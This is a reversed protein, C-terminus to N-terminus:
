HFYVQSELTKNLCSAFQGGSNMPGDDGDDNGGFTMMDSEGMKGENWQNSNGGMAGFRPNPPTRILEIAEEDSISPDPVFEVLPLIDFNIFSRVFPHGCNTCVDGKSFKNTFPNLLPNISGCRYCAPLHEPEDRVPKAQVLLMDREVDEVWKSPIKLKGLRDYAYRALKYAGLLMSQRALTYITAAKSIGYPISDSNGLSNIIFRTVQFLMDPHQSTFPDTVYEHVHAYAFYLDSNHECEMQRLQQNPMNSLEKSMLWYYYASDKFRSECVSNYTLEELVKQALDQRQAKKYAQMADEYRDQTILWEAYPLFMSPDFRGENEEALKAAEKWMERKVYLHMIKSINGLKTYVERALEDENAACLVEGCFNLAEVEEAPAARVVHQMAAQWGVAAGADSIIRAAEIFRNMSVYIEASGKWDNIEQLWKAQKQVLAAAGGPVGSSEALMKADNWLRLDTFLRIAEDVKGARAYTKAAEHIHGEYALVEAQWSPSLLLKPAQATTTSIPAPAVGRARRGSGDVKGDGIKSQISNVQPNAVADREIAQILHLFKGEKLRAFAIKAIDLRNGRLAKLAL